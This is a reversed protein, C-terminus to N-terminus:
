ASTNVNFCFFFDFNLWGLASVPITPLFLEITHSSIGQNIGM